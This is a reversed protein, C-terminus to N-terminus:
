IRSLIICLLVAQPIFEYGWAEVGGHARMTRLPVAASCSSLSVLVAPYHASAAADLPSANKCPPVAPHSAPSCRQVTPLPPSPLTRRWELVAASSSSLISRPPPCLRYHYGGENWHPRLQVRHPVAPRSAVSPSCQLAWRWNLVAARSSSLRHTSAAVAFGEEVRASSSSLMSRPPSRLCHRHGGENLHPRFQARQFLLKPHRASCLGGGSSCQQVLSHVQTTPPPL